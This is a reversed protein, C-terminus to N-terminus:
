LLTGIESILWMENEKSYTITFYRENTGEDFLSDTPANEKKQVELEVKFIIDGKRDEPEENTYLEISNIQIKEVESKYEKVFEGFTLLDGEKMVKNLQMLYAAEYQENNINETWQSIIDELPELNAYQKLQYTIDKATKLERDLEAREQLNLTKEKGLKDIEGYLENITDQLSRKEDNIEKIQLSLAEISANKTASIDEFNERSKERDWLLYNFAIFVAMIVACVLVLMFKKM